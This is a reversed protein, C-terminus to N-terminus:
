NSILNTGGTLFIHVLTPRNMGLANAMSSPTHGELEMYAKLRQVIEEM